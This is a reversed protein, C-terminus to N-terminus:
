LDRERRYRISINLSGSNWSAASYFVRGFNLGVTLAILDARKISLVVTANAPIDMEYTLDRVGSSMGLGFASVINATTNKIIVDILTADTRLVGSTDLLEGNATLAIQPYQGDDSEIVHLINAAATLHLKNSSRDHICRGVGDEFDFHAVAGVWVLSFDDFAVVSGDASNQYVTLGGPGNPNLNPISGAYGDYITPSVTPTITVDTQISKSTVYTANAGLALGVRFPAGGGSILTATLRVRYRASLPSTVLGNSLRIGSQGSPGFTIRMASSVNANSASGFTTTWNGVGASGFSRDQASIIQEASSGYRLMAPVAGGLEYIELADTASLECNYLTFSSMAGLFPLIFTGGFNGVHLFTSTVTGQASPPTGNTTQAFTQSVGNIYCLWAGVKPRVITVVIRKGAYNTIVNAVTHRLWDTTAGPGYLSVYLGGATNIGWDAASVVFANSLSSSLAGLGLASTLTTLPVEIVFTIAFTETGINQNTLAGSLKTRGSTQDGDFILGGRPALNNRRDDYAGLLMKRTGNALGDVIGYDDRAPGVATISFDKPRNAM